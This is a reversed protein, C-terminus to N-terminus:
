ISREGLLDSLRQMIIAIEDERLLVLELGIEGRGADQDMVWIQPSGERLRRAVIAATLGPGPAIALQVRSFPLGTPDPVLRAMVGPIEGARTAFNAAKRAEAAVWAVNDRSGREELAALTGLIAEKTAKMGRGIGRGQARVSAILGTRGVILGATPAALYKQASVIVADAGTAVLERLRMDQAAGDILAPVGRERALALAAGFDVQAGRTLRSSVLLLCATGAHALAQQLAEPPCTTETGALVPIAGALRIAQVIPHGYDVALTIAAAACHVVTGAEAGSADALAASALTQLEDMVFFGGLAEATAAAVAPSARSVGLPTFTGRANIVCSLGYRRHLSM